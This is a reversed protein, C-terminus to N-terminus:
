NISSGWQQARKHSPSPIPPPPPTIWMQPIMIITMIMIVLTEESAITCLTTTSVAHKNTVREKLTVPINADGWWRRSQSQQVTAKTVHVFFWYEVLDTINKNWNKRQSARWGWLCSMFFHDGRQPQQFHEINHDSHHDCPYICIYFDM